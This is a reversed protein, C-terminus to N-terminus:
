RFIMIGMLEM